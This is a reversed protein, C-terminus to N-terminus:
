GTQGTRRKGQMEQMISGQKTYITRLRHNDQSPLCWDPDPACTTGVLVVGVGPGWAGVGGGITTSMRPSQLQDTHASGNEAAGKARAGWCGNVGDELRGREMQALRAREGSGRRASPRSGGGASDWAGTRLPPVRSCSLASERQLIPTIRIQRSPSETAGLMIASHPM